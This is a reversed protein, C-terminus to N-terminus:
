SGVEDPRNEKVVHQPRGSAYAEADERSAFCRVLFDQQRVGELVGGPFLARYYVRWPLALQADWKDPRYGEISVPKTEDSM